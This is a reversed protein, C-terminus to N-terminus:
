RATSSRNRYLAYFLPIRAHAVASEFDLVHRRDAEPLRSRGCLRAFLYRFQSLWLCDRLDKAQGRARSRAEMRHLSLLDFLFATSLSGEAAMRAYHGGLALLKEAEAWRVTQGFLSVSNKREKAAALAQAAQRAMWLAPLHPKCLVFGASLTLAPNGGTYRVFLRNLELTFAAMAQWPGIFLLDDGGAFVTYVDPFGKRIRAPLLASFFRDVARSLGAYLAPTLLNDAPDPRSLGRGLVLGLNDVDAKLVGLLPAGPGSAALQTFPMIGGPQLDPDRPAADAGIRPMHNAAPRVPLWAPGPGRELSFLVGTEPPQEPARGPFAVPCGAPAFFAGDPPADLHVRVGRALHAGLSAERECQPCSEAEPAMLRVTCVPCIRGGPVGQEADAVLHGSRVLSFFRRTKARRGEWSLEEVLDAFRTRALEEPRVPRACLRVSLAGQYENFCFADLEDQLAGAAEQGGSVAPAALLARGGADALACCPLLGFARQLRAQACAGLLQVTFSRARLLRAARAPHHLNFLYDQIGGTECLVLLLKESRRNEIDQPSWAGRERHWLYLAQVFAAAARAHDCLSVGPQGGAAPVLSAFEELLSDLTFVLQRPNQRLAAFDVGLRSVQDDLKQCLARYGEAGPASAESPFVSDTEPNWPEPAFGPSPPPPAAPDFAVRSFPSLLGAAAASEPEAFPALGRALTDAERVIGELRHEPTGHRSALHAAGVPGEAPLDLFRHDDFFKRTWLAHERTFRNAHADFPCFQGRASDTRLSGPLPDGTRQLLVGIDHFLAGVALAPLMPDGFGSM